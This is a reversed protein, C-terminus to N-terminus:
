RHPVRTTHHKIAVKNPKLPANVTQNGQPPAPTPPIVQCDTNEFQKARRATNSKGGRNEPKTALITTVVYKSHFGCACLVHM